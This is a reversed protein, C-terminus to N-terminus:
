TGPSRIVGDPRQMTEFTLGAKKVHPEPGATTADVRQRRKMDRDVEDLTDALREFLMTPMRMAAVIITVAEDSATEWDVDSFDRYVGEALQKLEVADEVLPRVIQVTRQPNNAVWVAALVSVLAFVYVHFNRFFFRM